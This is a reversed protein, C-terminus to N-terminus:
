RFYKGLMDQLYKRVNEENYSEIYEFIMPELEALVESLQPCANAECMASEIEDHAQDVTIRGRNLNMLTEHINIKM